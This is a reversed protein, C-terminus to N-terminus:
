VREEGDEFRMMMSLIRWGRVEDEYERKEM